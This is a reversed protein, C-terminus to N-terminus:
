VTRRYAEVINVVRAPPAYYFTVSEGGINASQQGVRTRERYMLAAIETVVQRVESPIANLEYGARYLISVNGTGESVFQDRLKIVNGALFYGSVGYATSLTVATGSITVSAVSIVPYNSPIISRGGAGDQLEVYDTAAITRGVQSEFWRSGAVIAQYLNIDDESHRIDLFSKLDEVSALAGGGDVTCIGKWQGDDALAGGVTAKLKLYCPFTKFAHTALLGPVSFLVTSGSVTGSFEAILPAADAADNILLWPTLGTLVRDTGDANKIDWSRSAPVLSQVSLFLNM